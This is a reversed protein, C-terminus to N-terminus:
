PESTEIYKKYFKRVIKNLRPDLIKFVKEKIKEPVGGYFAEAIGGAMCAVTDTDGGMSIAIRISSEFDKSELFAMIAAPVSYACSCAQSRKIASFVGKINEISLVELSYFKDQIYEKIQDKSAGDRALFICSAIAKAGEIGEQHSHTPGASIAAKRLTEDLSKSIWGVPHVRMASGNGFSNYSDMSKEKAWKIFSSGYGRNPYREYYDHLTRTWKKKNMLSDALAIMLVSDDTFRSKKTFLSFEEPVKKFEFRSGIIDGAIGGIM